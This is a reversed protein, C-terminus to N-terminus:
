HPCIDQHNVEKWLAPPRRENPKTNTKEPNAKTPVSSTHAGGVLVALVLVAVGVLMTIVGGSAMWRWWYQSACLHELYCLSVVKGPFLIM